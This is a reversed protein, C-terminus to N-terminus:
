TSMDDFCGVMLCHRGVGDGGIHGALLIIVAGCTGAMDAGLSKRQLAAATSGKLALLSGDVAVLIAPVSPVARDPWHLVVDGDFLLKMVLAATWHELAPIRSNGTLVQDDLRTSVVFM